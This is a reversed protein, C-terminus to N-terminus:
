SLPEGESKKQEVSTLQDRMARTRAEIEAAKDARGLSSWTKGLAELCELMVPEVVGASIQMDVAAEACRLAIETQDAAQLLTTLETMLSVTPAYKGDALGGTLAALVSEALEVARATRDGGTVAYSDEPPPCEGDAESPFPRKLMEIALFQRARWNQPFLEIARSLASLGKEFEGRRRHMAALIEAEHGAETFRKHGCLIKISRRTIEMAGVEPGARLAARGEATLLLGWALRFSDFFGISDGIFAM